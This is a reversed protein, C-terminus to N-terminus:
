QVTLDTIRVKGLYLVVTDGSQIAKAPNGFIMFYTHNPRINNNRATQRIAGLTPTDPVGLTAGRTEDVIHPKIRGNLFPAAKQTDLVRYRLDLMSGAASRHFGEIRVGYDEALDSADTQTVPAARPAEPRTACGPLFGVCAAALGFLAARMVGGNLLGKRFSSARMNM